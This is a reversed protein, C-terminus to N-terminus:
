SCTVHTIGKGKPAWCGNYQLDAECTQAKKMSILCLCGTGTVQIKTIADARSRQTRLRRYLAKTHEQHGRPHCPEPQSSQKLYVVLKAAPLDDADVLEGGLSASHTYDQARSSPSLPGDHVGFTRINTAIWGTSYANKLSLINPTKNTSRFQSLLSLFKDPAQEM